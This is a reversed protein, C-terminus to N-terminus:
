FTADLKKLYDYYYPELMLIMAEKTIDRFRFSYLLERIHRKNVGDKETFDENYKKLLTVYLHLAFKENIRESSRISPAIWLPRLKLIWYCYLATDKYESTVMDDHFIKFYHRRKYVRIVIDRIASLNVMVQERPYLKSVACFDNLLDDLKDVEKIYDDENIWKYKESM